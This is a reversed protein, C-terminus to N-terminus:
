NIMTTDPDENSKKAILKGDNVIESENKKAISEGIIDGELDIDYFDNERYLRFSIDDNYRTEIHTIEDGSFEPLPNIHIQDIVGNRPNCWEMRFM